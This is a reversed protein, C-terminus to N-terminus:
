KAEIQSRTPRPRLSTGTVLLQGEDKTVVLDLMSSSHLLLSYAVRWDTEGLFSATQRPEIAVKLLEEERESKGDWLVLTVSCRVETERGCPCVEQHTFQRCQPCYYGRIESPNTPLIHVVFGRTRMREGPKLHLADAFPATKFPLFEAKLSSILEPGPLPLLFHLMKGLIEEQQPSGPLLKQPLFLPIKLIDTYNSPLLRNEDFSVSRIRVTDGPTLWKVMKAKNKEILMTTAREGEYVLLVTPDLEENGMCTKEYVRALVDCESNQARSLPIAASLVPTEGEALRVKAWRRVALMHRHHDLGPSFTCKYLGYPTLEESALAYLSFKGAKSQASMTGTLAGKYLKFYCHQLRMIDGYSAVKPVPNQSQHFLQINAFDPFISEDTVKLLMLMDTSNAVPYSSTCDLVVCYVSGQSGSEASVKLQELTM